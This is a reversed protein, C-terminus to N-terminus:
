LNFCSSCSNGVLMICKVLFTKCLYFKNFLQFSNVIFLVEVCVLTLIAQLNRYLCYYLYLYVDFHYILRNIHQKLFSCYILLQYIRPKNTLVDTTMGQSTHTTEEDSDEERRGKKKTKRIRIERANAGGGGKVSGSGESSCLFGVAPKKDVAIEVVVILFQQLNHFNYFFSDIKYMVISHHVINLEDLWVKGGQTTGRALKQNADCGNVTFPKERNSLQPLHHQLSLCMHMHGQTYHKRGPPSLSYM